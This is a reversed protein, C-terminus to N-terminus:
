CKLSTMGPLTKITTKRPVVRCKRQTNLTNQRSSAFGHWPMSLFGPGTGETGWLWNEPLWMPVSATMVCSWWAALNDQAGQKKGGERNKTQPKGMRSHSQGTIALRPASGLVDSRRLHFAVHIEYSPWSLSPNFFSLPRRNIKEKRRTEVQQKFSYNSYVNPRTFSIKCLILVKKLDHIAFTSSIPTNSWASFTWCTWKGAEKSGTASKGGGLATWM